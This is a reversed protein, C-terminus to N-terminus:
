QFFLSCSFLRRLRIISIWRYVSVILPMSSTPLSVNVCVCVCVCVRELVHALMRMDVCVCVCVCVRETCLGGFLSRILVEYRPYTPLTIRPYLPSNSCRGGSMPLPV